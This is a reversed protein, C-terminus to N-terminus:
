AQGGGTEVGEVLGEGLRGLARGQEHEGLSVGFSGRGDGRLVVGAGGGPFEPQVHFEGGLQGPGRAARHSRGAGLPGDDGVVGESRGELLM